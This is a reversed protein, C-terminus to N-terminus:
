VYNHTEQSGYRRSKSKGVTTGSPRVILWEVMDGQPSLIRNFWFDGPINNWSSSCSCNFSINSFATQQYRGILCRWINFSGYSHLVAYSHHLWVVGDTLM